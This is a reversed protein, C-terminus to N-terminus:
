QEPIGGFVELTQKQKVDFFPKKQIDAVFPMESQSPQPQPFSKLTFM